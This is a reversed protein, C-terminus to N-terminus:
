YIVPDGLVTTALMAILAYASERPDFYGAPWVPGYPSFLRASGKAQARVATRSNAYGTLLYHVAMGLASHARPAQNTEDNVDITTVVYDAQATALAHARTRWQTDGTRYYLLYYVLAGDYYNAGEGTVVIAEADWANAQALQLTDYATAGMTTVPGLLLTLEPSPLTVLSM